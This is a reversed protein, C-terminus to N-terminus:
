LRVIQENAIGFVNRTDVILPAHTRIMEMDYTSHDTVLVVCHMSDLIEPTLTCASPGPVHHHYDPIYPDHYYVDAGRELLKDIIELSPSERIDDIDRKYALGLVLVRAARISVGRENVADMVMRVVNEPMAHNIREALEIFSTECGLERAKWSLYHPDIPICHGGVGPGPYFPMFGFPKSSAAQIAQWINVNMKKAITALENALAINVHRFTNEILKAMEAERPSDVRVIKEIASGYLACALDGATKGFGGVVKPTNEVHFNPNGPDIREPSFAVLFDEGEHLGSTHLIPVLLEETTGPYTTSELIVLQGPRLVKAMAQAASEIYSLDPQRNRHCPTPVCIIIADAEQLADADETPVFAHRELAAALRSSPVDMIDSLGQRLQTIKRLNIDVGIVSLQRDAFAMALPLGVYGLGIVGVIAQRTAIREALVDWNQQTATTTIRADYEM